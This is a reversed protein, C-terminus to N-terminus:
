GTGDATAYDGGFIQLEPRQGIAVQAIFPLLNNSIGRTNEGILGSAHAGVPNFYRLAMIKWANDSAALDRLLTEIMLKSQGYPNTAGLPFNEQIPVKEPDGYVTASSSFVLRKCQYDAMVEFLTIAGILNNDYYRLPASVSEGVAKLGAFHIVVEIPHHDFLSELTKRDRIDGRVFNVKKGTIQAIRDFVRA